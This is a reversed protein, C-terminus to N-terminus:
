SSPLTNKQAIAFEEHLIGYNGLPEKHIGPIQM